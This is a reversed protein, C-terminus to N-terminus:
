ELFVKQSYPNNLPIKWRYIPFFLCNIPNPLTRKNSGNNQYISLGSLCHLGWLITCLSYLYRVTADALYTLLTCIQVCPFGDWKLWWYGVCRYCVGNKVSKWNKPYKSAWGATLLGCFTVSLHAIYTNWNKMLGGDNICALENMTMVVSCHWLAQDRSLFWKRGGSIGDVLVHEYYRPRLIFNSGMWEHNHM